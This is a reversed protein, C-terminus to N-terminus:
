LKAWAIMSGSFSISGIILGAIITAISLQDGVYHNFEILGIIAASAGGMGNFLSVLEPMKTMGVKKAVGWGIITGIVIAAGILSYILPQVKGQYLFITGFIALTMGFAAILNGKRATEPHGLMKLGLIYTVSAILYIFELSFIYEM